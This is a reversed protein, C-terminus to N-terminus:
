QLGRPYDRGHPSCLHSINQKQRHSTMTIKAYEGFVNLQITNATTHLYVCSKTVMIANIM